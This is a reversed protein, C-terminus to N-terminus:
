EVCSRVVLFEFFILPCIEFSEAHSVLMVRIHCPLENIHPRTEAALNRYYEYM